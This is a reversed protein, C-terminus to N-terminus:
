YDELINRLDGIHEWYCWMKSDGINWSSFQLSGILTAGQLVFRALFFNPARAGGWISNVIISHDHQQNGM